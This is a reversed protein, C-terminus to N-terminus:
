LTTGGRVDLILSGQGPKTEVVANQLEQESLDPYRVNYFEKRWASKVEDVRNEPVLHVSCGGWGAGTLRGGWAGHNRAIMCLQDLEPCSCEYVDRCSDQTDNVLEALKLIVDKPQESAPKTLLAAFQHVRLAETYVHMARQRLKFRDARVPVKTTYQADLEDVSINLVEAIDERTYGDEQQLHRKSLYIMQGLQTAFSAEDVENSKAGREEAFFTDQLGRLSSGLPSADKPLPTRLSLKKALYQAALTCEVVRLNYCVPATVHKNSTVLSQAILFVLPPEIHTPFTIPSADLRPHFSIHLAANRNSLVSAAQDMGGSNVGVARESVIALEVLERKDVSEEGNARLVALASACVFAASSSLGGGAPVTGDVLINMGNPVQLDKGRKRQLLGAAGKLGAKFYNSWEHSSADIQIDWEADDWEADDGSKSSSQRAPVAFSREPFKDPDVNAITTTNPAESPSPHSKPVSCALLVDATIAMPICPYLSYDIHEGILNVRGPSRSIFQAQQHYHDEFKSLLTSWRKRQEPLADAPYVETFDATVPVSM